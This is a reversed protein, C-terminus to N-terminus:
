SISPADEIEAFTSGSNRRLRRIRDGLTSRSILLLEAAKSKNGNSAALAWDILSSEVKELHDDLSLGAGGPPVTTEPDPALTTPPVHFLISSPMCGCRVQRCSCTQAMRECANELERVNGPWSYRGFAERVTQSLPPVPRPSFYKALFHDTLLPIDERRERLPPLTVPMVDLRYFLDSRFKGEAVMTRLPRKSGTIIRVDVPIERTGGVREIRRQQLARLLKVQVSPPIDDVDDLFLTGGDALEFRGARDNVAGTFAGREHGFLETEILTETLIACSVAVFPKRRRPSSHHVLRAIIEKGTGTEGTILVNSESDAIVRVFDFVVRMRPSKGVVISDISFSMAATLAVLIGLCATPM